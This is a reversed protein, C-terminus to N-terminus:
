EAVLDADWPGLLGGHMGLSHRLTPAHNGAAPSGQRVYSPRLMASLTDAEAHSFAAEDSALRRAPRASYSM